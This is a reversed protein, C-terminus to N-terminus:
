GLIRELKSLLEEGEFPKPLYACRGRRAADARLEPRDFGTVFVVPLGPTRLRLRDVLHLGDMCPLHIDCVLGDMGLFQEMRLLAEASEFEACDYGAATLLRGLARRMSADDEVVSIRKRGAM